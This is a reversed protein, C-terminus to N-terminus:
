VAQHLKRLENKVNNYDCHEAGIPSDDANRNGFLHAVVGAPLQAGSTSQRRSSVVSSGANESM